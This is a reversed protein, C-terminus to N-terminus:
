LLRGDVRESGYTYGHQVNNTQCSSYKAITASYKQTFADSKTGTFQISFDEVQKRSVQDADITTSLVGFQEAILKQLDVPISSFGWDATVEVTKCDHTENFVISNYWDGNFSSGQKVKYYTNDLENGNVTLTQIEDFIPVNLTRYGTRLEFTRTDEVSPTIDSCIMDSVRSLALSYLTSFNATESATLPRGLLAAITDASM